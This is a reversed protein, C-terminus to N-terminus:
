RLTVASSDESIGRGNLAPTSGLLTAHALAPGASTALLGLAMLACVVARRIRNM